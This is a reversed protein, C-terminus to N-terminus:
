LKEKLQCGAIKPTCSMLCHRRLHCQATRLGSCGHSLLLLLMHLLVLVRLAAHRWVHVISTLKTAWSCGLLKSSGHM